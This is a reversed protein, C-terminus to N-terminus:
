TWHPRQLAGASRQRGGGAACWRQGPGPRAHRLALEGMPHGPEACCALAPAQLRPQGPSGVRGVAAVHRGM